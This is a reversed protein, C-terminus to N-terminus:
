NVDQFFETNADDMKNENKRRTSGHYKLGGPSIDASASM